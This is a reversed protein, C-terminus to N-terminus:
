FPCDDSAESFGIRPSNLLENPNVWTGGSEQTYGAAIMEADSPTAEEPPCVGCTCDGGGAWACNWQHSDRQNLAASERAYQHSGFGDGLDDLDFGMDTAGTTANSTTVTSTM